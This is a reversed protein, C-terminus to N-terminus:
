IYLQLKQMAKGYTPDFIVGLMEWPIELNPGSFKQNKDATVTQTFKSDCM